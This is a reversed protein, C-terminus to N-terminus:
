KTITFSTIMSQLAADAHDNSIADTSIEYVYDGLLLYYNTHTDSADTGPIQQQLPQEQYGPEGGLTMAHLNADHRQIRDKLPKIQAAINSDRTNLVLLSWNSILENTTQVTSTRTIVVHLPIGQSADAAPAINVQWGAPYNVSFHFADNRYTGGPLPAQTPTSRCGALAVGVLICLALAAQLSRRGSLARRQMSADGAQMSRSVVRRVGVGCTKQM